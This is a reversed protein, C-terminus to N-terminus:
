KCAALSTVVTGANNLAIVACTAGDPSKLLIGAGPTSIFLEGSALHLADTPATTGIGVNGAQTLHVNSGPYSEATIYSRFWLDTGRDTFQSGVGGPESIQGGAYPNGTMGLTTFTNSPDTIELTYTTGAQLLPAEATTFTIATPTSVNPLVAQTQLLAAGGTGNGSYLKVTVTQTGTLGNKYVDFRTLKGNVTPTFSQGCVGRCAIGINFSTMSVDLAQPSQPGAPLVNVDLVTGPATLQGNADIANGSAGQPGQPGDAGAAGIDGKPGQPGVPGAAGPAGTDGKLGQSGIAGTAGTAGTDGKLGQPGIVGNAGTAGTDGKPGQTGVPGAAGTDGAAGQPGVAGAAGADGKPGQLGQAGTQGQPGAPGQPGMIGQLGTNGKPGQAGVV